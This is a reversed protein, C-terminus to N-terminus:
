PSKNCTHLDAMSNCTLLDVMNILRSSRFCHLGYSIISAAALLRSGAEDGREHAVVARRRWADLVAGACLEYSIAGHNEEGSDM